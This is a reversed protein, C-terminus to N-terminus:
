HVDEGDAASGEKKVTSDVMSSPLFGTLPVQVERDGGLINMSDDKGMSMDVVAPVQGPKDSLAETTSDIARV